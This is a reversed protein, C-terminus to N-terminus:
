GFGEPGLSVCIPSADGKLESTVARFLDGTARLTDKRFLLFRDVTVKQLVEPVSPSLKTVACELKLM